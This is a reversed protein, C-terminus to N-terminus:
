VQKGASQPENGVLACAESASATSSADPAARRRCAQRRCAKVAQRLTPYFIFESEVFGARKAAWEDWEAKRGAAVTAIGRTRLLSFVEEAAYIGTSDVITVPLMDFVVWKLNQGAAEVAQLVNTKFHAANFFVLPGNFRLIVLEPATVANPHRSVPHFGALGAIEGLVEITPRALIRILRSLELVVAFLIAKIAGVAIVGLMTLIALMFAPWDIRHLRRLAALDILSMAATILVTGLAANPVYRLPDTFFLMVTAIAAAAVLGTM